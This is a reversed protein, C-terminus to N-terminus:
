TFTVRHNFVNHRPQSFRMHHREARQKKYRRGNARVGHRGFLAVPPLKIMAKLVKHIKTARIVLGFRPQEVLKTNEVIPFTGPFDQPNSCCRWPASPKM